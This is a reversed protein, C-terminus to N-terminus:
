MLLTIHINFNTKRKLIFHPMQCQKGQKFDIPVEINNVELFIIKYLEVIKSSKFKKQLNLM